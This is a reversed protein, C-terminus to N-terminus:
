AELATAARIAALFEARSNAGIKRRIHAVHHEVTKPSVYLQAGVEKYTRGAAVLLAVEAERESLGLALLGSEGAAEPEVALARAEELLRRAIVPDPHDLAAQGLLRSAEWSDGVSELLQSTATLAEDDVAQNQIAAWAAGAHIRAVSRDDAPTCKQLADCATTIAHKDSRALAIQLRLWHASVGGPGTLPLGLLQSALEDAIPQVRGTEGLRSGAALLEVVLDAFLWSASTRVLVPDARRWADRLRTTDGSRRAIAADIAALLFRDRLAWGTDEGERVATLAEEFRGGALRTYAHLLRHTVAEGEGASRASIAQDLLAQSTALDGISMAASAGVAHPTIGLPVDPNVRDFDDAAEALGALAQRAEGAALLAMNSVMLSILRPIAGTESLEGPSEVMEGSLMLALQRSPVSMEEGLPRRAASQWRLDRMDLGFGITAARTQADVPVEALYGLADRSGQEYAARLRILALETEDFGCAMGHDAMDLARAPDSRQLRRAVAVLVEESGPVEGRGAMVSDAAHEPHTHILTAALRDHIQARAAAPLDAAVAERVIPPLVGFEDLLGGASAAREAQERGVAADLADVLDSVELPPAVALLQVLATAEPGCRNIRNAVADVLQPPLDALDRNWDANVADVALGLSGATAQHLEDLAKTSAPGEIFTSAIQAFEEDALLGTRIAQENETLLDSVAQLQNSMPWTRRSGWVSMEKSKSSELGVLLADLAEEDFWQLDDLVLATPNTALVEIVAVAKVSRAHHGTLWAVPGRGDTEVEDSWFRLRQTRGTGGPGVVLRRSM